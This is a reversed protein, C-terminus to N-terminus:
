LACEIYGKEGVTAPATSTTTTDVSSDIEPVAPFTFDRPFLNCQAHHQMLHDALVLAVM